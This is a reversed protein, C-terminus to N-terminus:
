NALSCTRVTDESFCFNLYKNKRCDSAKQPPSETRLQETPHTENPTAWHQYIPPGNARFLFTAKSELKSLHVDNPPGGTREKQLPM